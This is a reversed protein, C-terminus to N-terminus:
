QTFLNFKFGAPSVFLFLIGQGINAMATSLGVVWWISWGFAIFMFFYAVIALGLNQQVATLATRLNAAAFPIRGWVFYAYCCGVAFGAFGLITLLIDGSMLGLVGILASSAVSFILATKVMASAFKSMFSLALTSLGIAVAGCALVCFVLGSINAGGGGGQYQVTGLSLIVAMVALHVWFLIAFAVDNFKKPQPDGKVGNFDHVAEDASTYPTATGGSPVAVGQVIPIRNTM